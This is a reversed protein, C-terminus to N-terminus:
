RTLTYVAVDAELSYGVDHIMFGDKTLDSLVQPCTASRKSPAAASGQYATVAFQTGTGCRIMVFDPATGVDQAATRGAWVSVIAVVAVTMALVAAVRRGTRSM